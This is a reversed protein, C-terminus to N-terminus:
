GSRSLQSNLTSVQRIYGMMRREGMLEVAERLLAVSPM